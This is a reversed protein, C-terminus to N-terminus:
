KYNIAVKELVHPRFHLYQVVARYCVDADDMAALAVEEAHPLADIMSLDYLKEQLTM